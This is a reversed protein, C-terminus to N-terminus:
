REVLYLKDYQVFIDRVGCSANDDKCIGPLLETERGNDVQHLIKCGRQRPRSRRTSGRTLGLSYLQRLRPYM